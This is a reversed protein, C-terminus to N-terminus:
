TLFLSRKLLALHTPMKDHKQILFFLKLCSPVSASKSLQEMQHYYKELKLRGRGKAFQKQLQTEFTNHYLM